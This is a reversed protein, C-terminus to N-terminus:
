HSPMFAIDSRPTPDSSVEGEAGAGTAEDTNETVARRNIEDHDPRWNPGKVKVQRAVEAVPHKDDHIDKPPDPTWNPAKSSEQRAVLAVKTGDLSESVTYKDHIGKPPDPKWNPGKSSKQRAVLAVKTGDLSEAVTHKDDHVGKPPDPTWNPAKSSEQRAVLAVKTGELSESVPNKEDHVGKPPDPKWVPGKSSKQRPVLAVKTGDLIGYEVESEDEADDDADFGLYGHRKGEFLDEPRYDFIAEEDSVDSDRKAIDQGSVIDRVRTPTALEASPHDVILGPRYSDATEVDADPPHDIIQGPRYPGKADLDGASTGTPATISLAVLATLTFVLTSITRM